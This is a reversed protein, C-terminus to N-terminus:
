PRSVRCLTTERKSPRTPGPVRKFFSVTLIISFLQRPVTPPFPYVQSRLSEGMPIMTTQYFETDDHCRPPPFLVITDSFRGRGRHRQRATAEDDNSRLASISSHAAAGDATFKRTSEEVRFVPPNAATCPTKGGNRVM